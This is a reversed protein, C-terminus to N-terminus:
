NETIITQTITYTDRNPSQSDQPRDQSPHTKSARNPTNM